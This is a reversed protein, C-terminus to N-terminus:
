RILALRLTGLMQRVNWYLNKMNTTSVREARTMDRGSLCLSLARERALALSLSLSLTMGGARFARRTMGGARRARRTMIERSVCPKSAERV